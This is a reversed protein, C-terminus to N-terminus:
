FGYEAFVSATFFDRSCNASDIDTRIKKQYETQLGLSFNGVIRHRYSADVDLVLFNGSLSKGGPTNGYSNLYECSANLDFNGAVPSDYEAHLKLQPGFTYTSTGAELFKETQTFINETVGFFVFDTELGYAFNNKGMNIKQKFFAGISNLSLFSSDSYHLDYNFSAGFNSDIKENIYIPASFFEGDFDAKFFYGGSSIEGKIDASFQDMFEKTKHGYPDQYTVAANFFFEPAIRNKLVHTGANVTEASETFFGGGLDFSMSHIRSKDTGLKRGTLISNISGVPNFLAGLWPNIRAGENGLRYLIEGVVSGAFTTSIFDNLSNNGAEICNEWLFSGGATMLFSQWFNLGNSRAVTFYMNGFYPHAAQNKLFGSTDWLWPSTLNKWMISPNTKMWSQNLILTCFNYVSLNTVIIETATTVYNKWDADSTLLLNKGESEIEHEPQNSDSNMNEDAHCFTGSVTLILLLCISRIKMIPYSLVIQVKAAILRIRAIMTKWETKIM